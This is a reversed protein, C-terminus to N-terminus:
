RASTVRVYAYAHVKVDKYTFNVECHVAPKGDVDTTSSGTVTGGFWEAWRAMAHFTDPDNGFQLDIAQGTASINVMRPQPLSYDEAFMDLLVSALERTPKDQRPATMTVFDPVEIPHATM